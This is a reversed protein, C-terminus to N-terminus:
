GLRALEDRAAAYEILTPSAWDVIEEWRRKAAQRDTAVTVVALQFLAEARRGDTDARQLLEEESIRGGHLAILPAPWLDASGADLAPAAADLRRLATLRYLEWYPDGPEKALARNLEPLAAYYDAMRLAVCARAAAQEAGLLELQRRWDANALELNGSALHAIARGSLAEGDKPRATLAVDFAELAERFRGMMSLAEGKLAMVEPLDPKLRLAQQYDALAERAKGESLYANGRAVFPLTRRKVSQLVSTYAAIEAGFQGRRRLAFPRDPAGQRIAGRLKRATEYKSIALSSRGTLDLLEAQAEIADVLSPALATADAFLEEAKKFHGARAMAHGHFALSDADRGNAARGDRGIGVRGVRRRWTEVMAESFRGWKGLESM